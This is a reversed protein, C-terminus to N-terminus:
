FSIFLQPMLGYVLIFMLFSHNYYFGCIFLVTCCLRSAISASSSINPDSLIMLSLINFLLVFGAIGSVSAIDIAGTTYLSFIYALVGFLMTGSGPHNSPSQVFNLSQHLPIYSNRLLLLTTTVSSLIVITNAQSLSPM